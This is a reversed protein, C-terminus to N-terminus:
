LINSINEIVFLRQDKPHSSYKNFLPLLKIWTAIYHERQQSVGETQTIVVIVHYGLNEVELSPM